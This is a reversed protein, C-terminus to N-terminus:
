CENIGLSEALFIFSNDPIRYAQFFQRTPCYVGFTAIKTTADFSGDSYFIEHLSFTDNILAQIHHKVNIISYGSM